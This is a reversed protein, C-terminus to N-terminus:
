QICGCGGSCFSVGVDMFTGGSCSAVGVMQVFGRGGSCFAVSVILVDKVVVVGVM